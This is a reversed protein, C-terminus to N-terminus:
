LTNQGETATTTDKVAPRILTWGEREARQALARQLVARRDDNGAFIWLSEVNARELMVAVFGWLTRQADLGDQWVKTAELEAKMAGVTARSALWCAALYANMQDHVFEYYPPAARILRINRGSRERAAEVKELLDKPADADPKLRRKDENPGRESMLKWAAAQFTELREDGEPWAEAVAARYLGIRDLPLNTGGPDAKTLDIVLRADYGSRLHAILGSERLRRALIKGGEEGLYLALLGDIHEAITSPLRWVEFAAEGAEQSTLFLPAEAFEAAFATVAQGRAVENLGDIAVGLTGKYLMARLLGRDEFSLGGESLISLVCAIVWASSGKEEFPAEPFRRAEIPVLVYNSRRFITFATNEAGGFHTQHLHSFLATKGM